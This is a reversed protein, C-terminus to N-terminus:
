QVTTNNLGRLKHHSLLLRQWPCIDDLSSVTPCTTLASYFILDSEWVTYNSVTGLLHAGQHCTMDVPLCALVGLVKDSLNSLMSYSIFGIKWMAKQRKNDDIDKRSQHKLCNPVVTNWVLSTSETSAKLSFCLDHNLWVTQFIRGEEKVALKERVQKVDKPLMVSPLFWSLASKFRFVIWIPLSMSFFLFTKELETHLLTQWVHNDIKFSKLFSPRMWMKYCRIKQFSSVCKDTCCLCFM